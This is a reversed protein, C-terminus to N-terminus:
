MGYKKDFRLRVEEISSYRGNAIDEEARLAQDMLRKKTFEDVEEKDQVSSALDLISHIVYILKPDNRRELESAIKAIDAQINM